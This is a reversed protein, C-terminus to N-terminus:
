SPPTGGPILNIARSLTVVITLLATASQVTFLIKVRHTLPMTDTPSFAIINTYATFLYDLLGPKWNEQGDMGQQPFLFDPNEAKGLARALPGGGDLWWYVLGFSLVNIILVGFGAFLLPGGQESFGALLSLLLLVANMVSALVLITLFLTMAAYILRLHKGAFFILAGVIPVGILEIFPVLWIPGPTVVDPLALQIAIIVLVVLIVWLATVRLGHAVAKTVEPTPAEPATM